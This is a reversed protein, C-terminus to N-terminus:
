NSWKGFWGATLRSSDLTSQSRCGALELRFRVRAAANSGTSTRRDSTKEWSEGFMGNKTMWFMPGVYALKASCTAKQWGATDLSAAGSQWRHQSINTGVQIRRCFFFSHLFLWLNQESSRCSLSRSRGSAPLPRRHIHSATNRGTRDPNRDNPRLILCQHDAIWGNPSTVPEASPLTSAM